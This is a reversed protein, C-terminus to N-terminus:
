LMVRLSGSREKVTGFLYESKRVRCSFRVDCASAAGGAESGRFDHNVRVVDLGCSVSSRLFPRSAYRRVILSVLSGRHRFVLAHRVKRLRGLLVAEAFELM